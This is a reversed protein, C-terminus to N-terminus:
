CEPATVRGVIEAIESLNLSGKTVFDDAGGQRAAARYEPLDYETLIIIIIDPHSAKITETLELGSKGPLRIDMFILDPEFTGIKKLAETGDAAEEVVMSPFRQCLAKKFTERFTTSDEVILTKQM